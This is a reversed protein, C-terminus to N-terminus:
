DTGEDLKSIKKELKANKKELIEIHRVLDVIADKCQRHASGQFDNSQDLVERKIGKFFNLEGETM